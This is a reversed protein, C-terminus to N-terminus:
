RTGRAAHCGVSLEVNTICVAGRGGYAGESGGPSAGVARAYAISPRWAPSTPVDPMAKEGPSHIGAFDPVGAVSELSNYRFRRAKQTQLFLRVAPHSAVLLISDSIRANASGQQSLAM